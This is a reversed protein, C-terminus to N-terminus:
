RPDLDPSAFTCGTTSELHGSFFHLNVIAVDIQRVVNFSEIGNGCTTAARRGSLWQVPQGDPVESTGHTRVPANACRVMRDAPM